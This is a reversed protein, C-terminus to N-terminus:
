VTVADGHFLGTVCVYEQMTVDDDRFLGTVCVYM